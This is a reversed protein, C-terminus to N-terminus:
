HAHWDGETAPCGNALYAAWLAKGADDYNGHTPIAKALAMRAAKQKTGRATEAIAQRAYDAGKVACSNDIHM